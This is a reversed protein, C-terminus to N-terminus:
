AAKRWQSYLDMMERLESDDQRPAPKPAIKMRPIFSPIPASWVTSYVFDVPKAPIQIALGIGPGFAAIPGINFISPNFIGANFIGSM